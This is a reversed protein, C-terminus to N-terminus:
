SKAIIKLRFLSACKCSLFGHEPSPPVSFYDKLRIDLTDNRYLIMLHFYFILIQHVNWADQVIKKIGALLHM